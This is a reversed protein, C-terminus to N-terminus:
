KKNISLLVFYIVNINFEFSFIAGSIQLNLSARYANLKTRQKHLEEQRSKLEKFKKNLGNYIIYGRTLIGKDNSNTLNITSNIRELKTSLLWSKYKYACQKWANEDSVRIADLIEETSENGLQRIHKLRSRHIRSFGLLEDVKNMIEEQIDSLTGKALTASIVDIMGSFEQLKYLSIKYDEYIERDTAMVVRMYQYYDEFFLKVTDIVDEYENIGNAKLTDIIEQLEQQMYSKFQEESSITIRDSIEKM